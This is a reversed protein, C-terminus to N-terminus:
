VEDLSAVKSLEGLRDANGHAPRRKPHGLVVITQHQSNWRSFEAFNVGFESLGM